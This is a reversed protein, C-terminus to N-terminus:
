WNHNQPLFRRHGIYCIKDRLRVSCADKNCSPCALYGKTSWGSINALAPFDNITWMLAAKLQFTQSVSADYTQIGDEWLSKLEDILPELYVDIDNGPQKPGPILLTLMFFFEKMYKWPPLNYPVLIVPWISYPNNRDGFPNFGDAALGLRVNRPEHAFTPYAADFDKWAISDAPHSMLDHHPKHMEKHWRMDIASKKSMFLRQLRPSLPFYKLVKHPIKKGNIPDIKWRSSGCIHCIEANEHAKWFLSCDNKCAHINVYGLGLGKLLKNAEYYTKPLVEGEPFADKLLGLLM